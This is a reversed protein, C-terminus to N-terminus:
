YSENQILNKNYSIETAPIPLSKASPTWMPKVAEMVADIQATRKLDIFRHAWEGFFELKRQQHIEILCDDKSLHAIIPTLGARVRIMNIDPIAKDTQNLQAYAEARILYQESLRLAMIYEPNSANAM